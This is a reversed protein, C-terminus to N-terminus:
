FIFRALVATMSSLLLLGLSKIVVRTVPLGLLTLNYPECSIVEALNAAINAADKHGEVLLGWSLQRCLILAEDQLDNIQLGMVLVPYM